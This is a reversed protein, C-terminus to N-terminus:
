FIQYAMGIQINTLRTQINLENGLSDTFELASFNKLSGAVQLQLSLKKIPYFRLGFVYTPDTRDSFRTKTEQWVENFKYKESTRIALGLGAHVSVQRLILYQIQPLLDLYQFKYESPNNNKQDNNNFGKQSFQIDLSVSFNETLGVEPRASIYLNAATETSNLGSFDSTLNSYSIDSLNVGGGFHVKLQGFAPSTAITLLIIFTLYKM